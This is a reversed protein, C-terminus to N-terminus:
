PMPVRVEPSDAERGPYLVPQLRLERGQVWDAVIAAVDKATALQLVPELQRELAAAFTARDAARGEAHPARDAESARDQCERGPDIREGEARGQDPLVTGYQKDDGKNILWRDPTPSYDAWLAPQRIAPKRDDRGDRRARRGLAAPGGEPRGAEQAPDAAAPDHGGGFRRRPGEFM